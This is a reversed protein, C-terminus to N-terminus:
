NIKGYKKEYELTYENNKKMIEISEAVFKASKELDWFVPTVNLKQMDAIYAPNENVRKLAAEFKKGM